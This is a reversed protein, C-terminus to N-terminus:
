FPEEPDVTFYATVAARLNVFGSSGMLRNSAKNQWDRCAMQNLGEVSSIPGFAKEGLWM